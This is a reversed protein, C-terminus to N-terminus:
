PAPPTVAMKYSIGHKGNESAIFGKVVLSRVVRKCTSISVKVGLEDLWRRLSRAAFNSSFSDPVGIFYGSLDMGVISDM